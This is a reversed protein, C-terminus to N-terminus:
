GNQRTPATIPPQGAVQSQIAYRLHWPLHRCQSWQPPIDWLVVHHVRGQGDRLVDSELRPKPQGAFGLLADVHRSRCPLAIAVEDGPANFSHDFAEAQRCRPIADDLIAKGAPLPLSHGDAHLYNGLRPDQHEVLWGCAQVRRRGVADHLEDRLICALLLAGCERRDVLGPPVRESQEVHDHQKRRSSVKAVGPRDCCYLRVELLDQVDIKGLVLVGSVDKDVCAGEFRRPPHGQVTYPPTRRLAQSRHQEWRRLRRARLVPFAAHPLCVFEAAHQRCEPAVEGRPASAQRTLRCRGHEADAAEQGGKGRLSRNVRQRRRLRAAELGRREEATRTRFATQLDLGRNPHFGGMPALLDLHVQNPGQEDVAPLGRGQGQM